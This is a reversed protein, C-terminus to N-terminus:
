TTRVVARAAIKRLATAIEPALPGDDLARLAQEYRETIMREVTERAGTHQLIHRIRAADDESLDARGVLADLTRRQESTAHRTALAMLVTAKGARLDELVPKGTLAPDGFVGLLDDRMQFAEGLPLAYASCLSLLRRDAGALAAGLHLPREITYKATKLRAITMAKEVDDTPRGTAMLDMHQGLLVEGRMADLLPLVADRQRNNLGATNVLANSCILALDGLLIAAHVGVTDADPRARHRAAFARHASPRGRRTASGDIIDDHILAFAHFVELSAATRWLTEEGDDGGAAHWGLVCLLPRIRKGPALVFDTLAQTLEGARGRESPVSAPPRRLSEALVTDVRDRLADLDLAPALDTSM